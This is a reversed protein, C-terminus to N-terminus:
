VVGGGRQFLNLMKWIGGGGGGGGMQVSNWHRHQETVSYHINDFVINDIM